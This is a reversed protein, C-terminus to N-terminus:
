EGIIARRGMDMEHGANWSKERCLTLLNQRFQEYSDTEIVSSVLRNSGFNYVEGTHKVVYTVGPGRLGQPYTYCWYKWSDKSLSEAQSEPAGHKRCEERFYEAAREKTVM